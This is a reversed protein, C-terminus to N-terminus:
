KWSFLSRNIVYAMGAVIVGIVIFLLLSEQTTYDNLPKDIINDSVVIVQNDSVYEIDNSDSSDVVEASESVRDDNLVKLEKKIDELVKIDFDSLVYINHDEEVEEVDSINQFNSDEQSQDMRIDNNNESYEKEQGEIEQDMFGYYEVSGSDEIVIDNYM